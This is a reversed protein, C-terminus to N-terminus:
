PTLGLVAAAGSFSQHEAVRVFARMESTDM